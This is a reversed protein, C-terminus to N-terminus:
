NYPDLMSLQKKKNEIMKKRKTTKSLVSVRHQVDMDLILHM